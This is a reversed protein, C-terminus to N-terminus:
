AAGDSVQEPGFIKTVITNVAWTALAAFLIGLVARTMHRAMQNRGGQGLM